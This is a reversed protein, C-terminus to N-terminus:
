FEMFPPQSHLHLISNFLDKNLFELELVHWGPKLVNPDAKIQFFDYLFYRSILYICVLLFLFYNNKNKINNM